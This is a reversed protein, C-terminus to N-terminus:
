AEGLGCKRRIRNLESLEAPLKHQRLSKWFRSEPEQVWRSNKAVAILVNDVCTNVREDRRYAEGFGASHTIFGEGFCCADFLSETESYLQRLAAVSVGPIAGISGDEVTSVRRHAIIQHRIKTVRERM